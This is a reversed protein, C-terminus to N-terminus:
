APTKSRFIQQEIVTGQKKLFRAVEPSTIDTAVASRSVGLILSLLMINYKHM